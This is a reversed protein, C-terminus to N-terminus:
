RVFNEYLICTIIKKYILDIMKFEHKVMYKIHFYIVQLIM